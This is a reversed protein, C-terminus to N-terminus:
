VVRATVRMPQSRPSRSAALDMPEPVIQDLTRTAVYPHHGLQRERSYIDRITQLDEPVWYDLSLVPLRQQQAPALLSLQVKVDADSNWKCPCGDGSGPMTMLSEAVLGDIQGVVDPLLDYGRNMIILMNPNARRIARVLDIASQRMGRNGNPDQQELYPPTDLTDLFLGSFGDASIAPIVQHMLLNAWSRSRVDIRRSGPWAPNEKLLARPDIRDYFREGTRVEGLSLYACLQAGGKAIASKAGKFGPDLVVLDYSALLQEDATEGYYAVWKIRQQSAAKNALWSASPKCGTALLALFTQLITRRM